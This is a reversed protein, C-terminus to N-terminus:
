MEHAPIPRGPVRAGEQQQPALRPPNKPAPPRPPNIRGCNLGIICRGSGAPEVTLAGDGRVPASVTTSGAAAVNIPLVATPGVVGAALALVAVGGGLM